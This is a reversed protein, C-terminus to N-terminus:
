IKCDYDSEQHIFPCISANIQAPVTIQNVDSVKWIELFLPCQLYICIQFQIEGNQTVAGLFDQLPCCQVTLGSLNSQVAQFTCIALASFIVTLHFITLSM